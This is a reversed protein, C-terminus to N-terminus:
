TEEEMLKDLFQRFILSMNKDTEEMFDKHEQKVTVNIRKMKGMHKGIM